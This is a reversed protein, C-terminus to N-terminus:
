FLTNPRTKRLTIKILNLCNMCFYDYLIVHIEFSLNFIWM